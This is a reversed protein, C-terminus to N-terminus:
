QSVKQYDTDYKPYNITVISIKAFTANKKYRRL